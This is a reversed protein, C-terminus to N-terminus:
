RCRESLGNEVKLNCFHSVESVKISSSFPASPSKKLSCMKVMRYNGDVYSLCKWKQLYIWLCQSRIQFCVCSLRSFGPFSCDGFMKNLFRLSFLFKQGLDQIRLNDIISAKNDIFFLSSVNDLGSLSMLTQILWAFLVASLKAATIGALKEERCLQKSSGSLWSNSQLNLFSGASRATNLVEMGNCIQHFLTSSHFTCAGTIENNEKFAWHAWSLLVRCCTGQSRPM